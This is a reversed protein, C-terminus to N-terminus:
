FSVHMTVTSYLQAQGWCSVHEADNKLLIIVLASYTKLSGLKPLKRCKAERLSCSAQAIGCYSCFLSLASAILM